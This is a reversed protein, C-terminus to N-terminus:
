APTAEILFDYKGCGATSWKGINLYQGLLLLKLVTKSDDHNWFGGDVKYIYTGKFFVGYSKKEGKELSFKDLKVLKYRSYMIKMYRKTIEKLRKAQRPTFPTGCGYYEALLSYKRALHIVLAQPPPESVNKGEFVLRFPTKFNVIIKRPKLAWIAEIRREFLELLSGSSRGPKEIRYGGYKDFITKEEGYINKATISNVTFKRREGITLDYGLGESGMLLMAMVILPEKSLIKESFLTIKFELMRSRVKVPTVTYPKTVGQKAGKAALRADPKIDPTAEFVWAYFCERYRPCSLCNEELDEECVIRKLSLGFAGRVAFGTFGKFPFYNRIFSGKISYIKLTVSV